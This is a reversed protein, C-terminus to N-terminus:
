FSFLAQAYVFDAGASGLASLTQRAHDSRFFHGYGAQATALPKIAWTLIIKVESGVFGGHGPHLDYGGAQVL